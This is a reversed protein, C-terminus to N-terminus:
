YDAKFLNPPSPLHPTNILLTLPRIVGLPSRLQQVFDSKLEIIRVAVAGWRWREIKKERQSYVTYLAIGLKCLCSGGGSLWMHTSFCLPCRSSANTGISSTAVCECGVRTWHLNGAPYLYKPFFTVTVEWWEECRSGVSSRQSWTSFCTRLMFTSGFGGCCSHWKVSGIHVVIGTPCSASDM